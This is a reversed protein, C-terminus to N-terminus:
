WSGSSSGGAGGGSFGGGGGGSSFGSGGSAGPTSTFTGAATTSFDDVGDAISGFDPLSSGNWVYWSPMAVVAGSAAASAAVQAFLKAWRDAVGFVVAYPLYRSFIAQAEEFAIQDAEATVLYQKFGLSQALVVSGGATRAAMSRSLVFVILAALGLGAALVISSPVPVPFDAAADFRALLGGGWVLTNVAAFALLAGLVTWAQRQTEPSKRFWGRRVVEDYMLERVRKTTDAFTNRLDSLRVVDGSAFLGQLLAAEYPLLVDAVPPTLRTLVWDTRKILRGENAEEIRLHGRVALDLVTASVDITGAEEDIVTGVLGPGVGPPPTFAVTVTPHEGRRVQYSTDGPGPALGAPLGVYVEDRGRTRVLAIMGLLTVLPVAVGGVLAAGAVGRAAVPDVADPVGTEGGWPGDTDGGTHIEPTITGYGSQPLRNVITVAENSRVAGIDFRATEGPTAACTTTSGQEGVFCAAETVGGPGTVSLRVADKAIDDGASFVNFYFEHHDEFANLVNALHYTVVYTQTGSTRRGPDGVFIVDLGGQQEIKAIGAPAGSPSTASVDSLALYRYQDTPSGDDSTVGQRTVVARLIGRRQEGAPFRYVITETVSVGGERDLVYDATFSVMREDTAAGASTSLVAVWALAVGIAALWRRVTVTM